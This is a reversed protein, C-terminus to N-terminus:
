KKASFVLNTQFMVSSYYFALWGETAAMYATFNGGDLADRYGKYNCIAFFSPRPRGAYVKMWLTFLLTYLFAQSWSILVIWRAVSYPMKDTGLWRKPTFVPQPGFGFVAYLALIGVPIIVSIVIATTYPVTEPRIWPYSLAPDREIVIHDFPMITGVIGSAAICAAAGFLDVWLLAVLTKLSV